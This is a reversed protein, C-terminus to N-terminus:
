GAAEKWKIDLAEACFGPGMSLMLGDSEEDEMEKMVKNLVFLVTPSSMNGYNRLTTRSHILQDSNMNFATELSDLVKKGGPHAIIKQPFVQGREELWSNIAEKLWTDVLLPISKAFVVHMGDNKITWGMVDESEPLLFSGSEGLSLLVKTKSAALLPSKDGCVCLCAAGDSFLATGILQSKSHNDSQFTLSCCELCLILVSAEPYARCYDAARSLGATGGACGLGWLPIRKVNHRFGLKNILRVDISPTALGTTSVFFIADIAEVGVKQKLFFPSSLCDKIVQTGLSVATEIYRNNRDEFTPKAEFWELPASLYRYDIQGHDFVQLLRELHPIHGDFFCKVFAQTEDQTYAFEPTATASSLVQPM